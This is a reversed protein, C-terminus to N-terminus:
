GVRTWRGPRWGPLDKNELNEWAQATVILTDGVKVRVQWGRYDNLTVDGGPGMYRVKVTGEPPVSPEWYPNEKKVAQM